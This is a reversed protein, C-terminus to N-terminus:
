IYDKREVQICGDNITVIAYSPNSRDRNYSLSGPNVFWIGGEQSNDFVHTHGYFVIGCEERKAEEVLKSKGFFSLGPYQHGHLVLAKIGKMEVIQKEPFSTDYDNNGKVVVFNALLEEEMVADGCHIFWDADFHRKEIEEIGKKDGHNDSVVVIKTM